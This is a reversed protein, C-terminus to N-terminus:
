GDGDFTDMIYRLRRKDITLEARKLSVLLEASTIVSSLDMKRGKSAAALVSSSVTNQIHLMRAKLNGRLCNGWEQFIDKPTVGEERCRREVHNALAHMAILADGEEIKVEKLVEQDNADGAIARLFFFNKCAIPTTLGMSLGIAIASLFFHYAPMISVYFTFFATLYFINSLLLLCLAGQM